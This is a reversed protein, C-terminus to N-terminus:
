KIFIWLKFDYYDNYMWSDRDDRWVLETYNNHDDNYGKCVVLLINPKIINIYNSLFLLYKVFLKSISYEKM